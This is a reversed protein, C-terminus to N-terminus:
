SAAESGGRGVCGAAALLGSGAPVQKPSVINHAGLLEVHRWGLAEPELSEGQSEWLHSAPEKSLNWGGGLSLSSLQSTATTLTGLPQFQPMPLGM